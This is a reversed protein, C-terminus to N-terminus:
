ACSARERVHPPAQGGNMVLLSLCSPGFEPNATDLSAFFSFPGIVEHSVDWGWEPHLFVDHLMRARQLLADCDQSEGKICRNLLLVVLPRRTSDRTGDLGICEVVVLHVPRRSHRTGLPRGPANTSGRATKTGMASLLQALAVVLASEAKRRSRARREGRRRVVPEEHPLGLIRATRPRPGHGGLGDLAPLVRGRVRCRM